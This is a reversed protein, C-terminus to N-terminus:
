LSSDGGDAIVKRGQRSQNSEDEGNMQQEGQVAHVLTYWRAPLSAASFVASRSSVSPSTHTM